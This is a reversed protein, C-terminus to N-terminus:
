ESAREGLLLARQAEDAPVIQLQTCVPEDQDRQDPLELQAFICPRPGASADRSVAHM